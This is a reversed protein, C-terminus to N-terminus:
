QWPEESIGAGKDRQYGPTSTRLLSAFSVQRATRELLRQRLRRRTALISPRLIIPGSDYDRMM